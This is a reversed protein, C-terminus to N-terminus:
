EQAANGQSRDQRMLRLLTSGDTFGLPLLAGLSFVLVNDLSFFLALWWAWSGSHFLYLPILALVTILLSLLPGGLARRIHTSNPLPPEDPPYVSSSLVEWLRIGTMNHGTSRAALAHGFQHAIDAAWHLMVAALALIIAKPLSFKLLFFGTGSLALWLALSGVLASPNAAFTLGAVKVPTSPNTRQM